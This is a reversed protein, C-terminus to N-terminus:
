ELEALYKNVTEEWVGKAKLIAEVAERVAGEGGRKETVLAAVEKVEPVANAM